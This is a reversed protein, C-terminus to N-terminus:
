NNSSGFWLVTGMKGTIQNSGAGTGGAQGTIKFINTGTFTVGTVTSFDSIAFGTGAFNATFDVIVNLTSSTTRIMTVRVHWDGGTAAVGTTFTSSNFIPTGGFYLQITRTATASGTQSGAFEAIIKEGDTVFTNAKTTYTYLDTESTGTNNADTVFDAIAGGLAYRNLANTTEYHSSTNVEKAFAEPTTMLSGSTFYEPATGASSTGAPHSIKVSLFDTTKNYTMGADEGYVGGDNFPVRTSTGSTITTTGVTIGSVPTFYELATAGANVRLQQLATGLASLGTGGGGIGLTGYTQAAGGGGGSLLPQGASGAGTPYNFNYTGSAAQGQTTITGSTAGNLKIYGQTTGATGIELPASPATNLIGISTSNGFLTAGTLVTASTLSGGFGFSGTNTVAGRTTMAATAAATGTPATQIAWNGSAYYNIVGLGNAVYKFGSNYVINDSLFNNNVAFSQMGFTTGAVYSFGTANVAVSLKSGDFTFDADDTLLGSTTAFTVRGSTLNSLLIGGTLTAKDTAADYTFGADGGFSGSANYQVQTNSGGPSGSGGSGTGYYAWASGNYYAHKASDTNFILLGTAPSSIANQQTTTLRPSLFGQTTSSMELLSSAVPTITGMGIQTGIVAFPAGTLATLSSSSASGFIGTNGNNLILMKTSLTAAAAASGSPASQFALNGSAFYGMFGLGADQYKFGGNYVINDTWFNNNKGFTQINFRDAEFSSNNAVQPSLIKGIQVTIGGVNPYTVKETLVGGTNTYISAYGNSTTSGRMFAFAANLNGAITNRIMLMPANTSADDVSYAQLRSVQNTTSAMVMGVSNNGNIAFPPKLFYTYSTNTDKLVTGKNLNPAYLIQRERELSDAQRFNGVYALPNNVLQIIKNGINYQGQATFHINDAGVPELTADILKYRPDYNGSAIAKEVHNMQINGGVGGAVTIIFIPVDKGFWSQADFQAIVSDLKNKYTSDTMSNDSEGQMWGMYSIHPNGASAMETIITTMNPSGGTPLWNNISNGGWSFNFVRIVKGTREQLRKAFYFFSGTATDSASGFGGTSWLVGPTYTGMPIQGRRLTVWINTTTNWGQVYQNSSSDIEGRDFGSTNSQGTWLIYLTDGRAFGGGGGSGISLRISHATDALEASDIGRHWAQDLYWQFGKGGGVSDVFLAGAGPWQGTQLTPAPAAPVHLARFYGGYWNYRQNIPTYTGPTPQGYCSVYALFSLILLRTKM